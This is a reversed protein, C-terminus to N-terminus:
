IDLPSKPVVEFQCRKWTPLPAVRAALGQDNHLHDQAVARNPMAHFWRSQRTPSPRCSTPASSFAPRSTFHTPPIPIAGHLSDTKIGLGPLNRRLQDAAADGGVGPHMHQDLHIGLRTLLFQPVFVLPVAFLLNLFIGFWTVRKYWRVLREYTNM